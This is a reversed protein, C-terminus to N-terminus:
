RSAKWYLPWKRTGIVPCWICQCIYELSNSGQKKTFPLVACFNFPPAPSSVKYGMVQTENWRMKSALPSLVKPNTETRRETTFISMTWSEKQNKGWWDQRLFFVFQSFKESGLAELIFGSCSFHHLRCSLGEAKRGLLPTHGEEPSQQPIQQSHPVWECLPIGWHEKPPEQQFQCAIRNGTTLRYKNESSSLLYTKEM